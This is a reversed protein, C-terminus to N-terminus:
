GGYTQVILSSYSQTLETGWLGTGHMTYCTILLYKFIFLHILSHSCIKESDPFYTRTSLHLKLKVCLHPCVVVRFCPFVPVDLSMALTQKGPVSAMLAMFQYCCKFPLILSGSSVPHVSTYPLFELPCLMLPNRCEHM